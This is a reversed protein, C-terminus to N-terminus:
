LGRFMTDRLLWGVGFAWVLVALVTRGMLWRRMWIMAGGGAVGVVAVLWKLWTQDVAALRSTGEICLRFIRDLHVGEPCRAVPILLATAIAGVTFLIGLGWAPGDPLEDAPTRLIRWGRWGSWGIAILCGISVLAAVAAKNACISDGVCTLEDWSALLFGVGTVVLCAPTALRAIRVTTGAHDRMAGDNWLRRPAGV